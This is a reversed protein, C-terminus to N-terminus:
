PQAYGDGDIATDAAYAELAATLLDPQPAPAISVTEIATTDPPPTDPSPAAHARSLGDANNHVRGPRHKVTFDYVALQMAWRALKPNKNKADQLYTLASHDTVIVFKTGAIYSHFKDCAYIIALLEGDTPGLKAEAASCTRSAYSIVHNKNDTKRQELVASVHHHSYDTHVTFPRDFDPLAL